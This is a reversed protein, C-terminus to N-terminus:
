SGLSVAGSRRALFSIAEEEGWYVPRLGRRGGMGRPRRAGHRPLAGLPFGGRARGRRVGAARVPRRPGLPLADAGDIAGLVRLSSSRAYYDDAGAFGHLPATAADDFERFTWARAARPLDIRAAAEPFRRVISAAKPMLTKVFARVYLASPFSAM